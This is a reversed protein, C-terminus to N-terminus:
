KDAWISLGCGSSNLRDHLILLLKEVNTMNEKFVASKSLGPQVLCVNYSWDTPIFDENLEHLEDFKDDLIRSNKTRNVRNM